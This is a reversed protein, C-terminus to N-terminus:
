EPNVKMRLQMKVAEKLELMYYNAWGVGAFGVPKRWRGLTYPALSWGSRLLFDEDAENENQVTM